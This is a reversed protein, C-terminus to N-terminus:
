VRRWRARIGCVRTHCFASVELDRRIARM